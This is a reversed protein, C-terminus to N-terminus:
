LRFVYKQALQRSKCKRRDFYLKDRKFSEYLQARIRDQYFSTSRPDGDKLVNWINAVSFVGCDVNRQKQVYVSYVLFEGEQLVYAEKMQKVVVDCPKGGPKLSDMYLIINRETYITAVFHQVRGLHFINASLPHARNRLSQKQEFLTDEFGECLPFMEKLLVNAAQIITDDLYRRTNTLLALQPERLGLIKINERTDANLSGM